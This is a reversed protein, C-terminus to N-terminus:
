LALLNPQHWVHAGHEREEPWLDEDPPAALADLWWPGTTLTGDVHTFICARGLDTSSGGNFVRVPRRDDFLRFGRPTHRHGHLVLDCRGRIRELLERGLALESTYRLGFWSSIREMAREEPLPLVHHHLLLVVLRGPPAQDLLEDIADIDSPELLGHSAILSRNHPGTSDVRVIYLGPALEAQVRPGPMIAAGLDDGLRDHNGPIITLRDAQRLPAFADNFRELERQKGRHTVDGTVVVHDIGVELLTRCLRHAREDNEPGRGVHLDSLHALKRARRLL